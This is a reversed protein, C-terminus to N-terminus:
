PQFMEQTFEGGLIVQGNVDQAESFDGLHGRPFYIGEVDFVPNGNEIDSDEESIQVRTLQFRPEEAMGTEPNIRGIAEPFAAYFDILTVPSVAHDVLRPLNGGFDRAFVLSKLTTTCITTISQWLDDLGSIEKGTYRDITAM